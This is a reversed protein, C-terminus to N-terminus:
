RSTFGVLADAAYHAKQNRNYIDKNIRGAGTLTLAFLTVIALRFTIAAAKPIRRNTIESRVRQEWRSDYEYLQIRPETLKFNHWRAALLGISRQNYIM